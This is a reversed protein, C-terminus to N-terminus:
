RRTTSSDVQYFEQFILDQHKKPIGIGQDKVAIYVQDEGQRCAIIKIPRHDPDFKIANDLFLGLVRAVARLDGAVMPLDAEFERRIRGVEEKAVWSREINRMALDVAERLIFPEQQLHESRALQTINQIIGELRSLSQAALRAPTNDPDSRRVDEVLLHVASKVQLLPTNMEHSVTALINRKLSDAEQASQLAQELEKNQKELSRLLRHNEHLLREIHNKTRLLAQVRVMLEREVVPKALYDDAGSVMSQLRTRDEDQATILIIPLYTSTPDQRLQLTVEYGNRDPLNLEMILLDPHYTTITELTEYASFAIRVEYGHRELYPQLMELTGNDTDAVLLRPQRTLSDAGNAKVLMTTM